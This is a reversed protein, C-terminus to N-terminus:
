FVNPSTFSTIKISFTASPYTQTSQGYNQYSVTVRITNSSQRSIYIDGRVYESPWFNLLSGVCYNSGDKSILIRNIAGNIVPVTFDLNQITYSNVAVSGSPITFELTRSDVQAISLYDSNLIFDSPKM